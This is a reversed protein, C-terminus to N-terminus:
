PVCTLASHNANQVEFVPIFVQAWLDRGLVDFKGSGGAM